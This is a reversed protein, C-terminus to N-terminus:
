LVITKLIYAKEKTGELSLRELRRCNTDGALARDQTTYYIRRQGTFSKSCNSFASYYKTKSRLVLFNWGNAALMAAWQIASSRAEESQGSQRHSIGQLFATEYGSLHM